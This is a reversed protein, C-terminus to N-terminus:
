LDLNLSNEFESYMFQNDIQGEFDIYDKQFDDFNGEFSAKGGADVCQQWKAKRKKFNIMAVGGTLIGTIKKPEIGCAKRKDKKSVLPAKASETAEPTAEPTAEAIKNATSDAPTESGGQTDKKSKNWVYLGVGVVAVVGVIILIKKKDM